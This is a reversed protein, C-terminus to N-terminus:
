TASTAKTWLERFTDTTGSRACWTELYDRDLTLHNVAIVGMVDERDKPRDWLLKQVIVDEASQIWIDRGSLTVRRRRSFRSQDFPTDTLRFLEITFATGVVALETKLSGGVTEFALQPNLRFKDGLLAALQALDPAHAGLVFDVDTTSRPFSYYMSSFSGVLMYPIGARDLADAVRQIAIGLNV